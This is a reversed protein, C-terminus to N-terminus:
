IVYLLFVQIFIRQMVPSMGGGNEKLSEANGKKQKLLWWSKKM